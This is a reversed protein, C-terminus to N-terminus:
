KNFYIKMFIEKLDDNLYNLSIPYISFHSYKQDDVLLLKECIIIHNEYYEPLESLSYYMTDDLVIDTGAIYTAISERYEIHADESEAVVLIFRHHTFKPYLVPSVEICFREIAINSFSFEEEEQLRWREFASIMKRKLKLERSSLFHHKDVLFLQTGLLASILFNLLPKEFRINKLLPVKFDQEFYLILQTIQPFMEVIRNRQYEYDMKLVTYNTANYPVIRFIIAMYIYEYNSLRDLIINDFFRHSIKKMEDVIISKSMYDFAYGHITMTEIETRSLMLYISKIFFNKERNNLNNSFNKLLVDTFNVSLEWLHRNVYDDLIDCRMWLSLILFRKNFEYKESNEDFFHHETLFKEVKKKLQFAKSVSIFEHEVISIYDKTGLIYRSCVKLFKSENYIDKVLEYRSVEPIFNITYVPTKIEINKIKSSLCTEIRSLDRKITESTVNLNNALTKIEFNKLDYFYEVLKVQRLIDKEIYEEIIIIEGM